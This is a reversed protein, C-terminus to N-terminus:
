GSFDVEGGFASANAGLGEWPCPMCPVPAAKRAREDGEGEQAKGAEKPATVPVKVIADCVYLKRIRGDRVRGVDRYKTPAPISQLGPNSQSAPTNAM